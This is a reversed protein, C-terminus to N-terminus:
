KKSLKSKEFLDPRKKLTAKIAQKKRWEEIKAHHGSLLVEPVSMNLFKEPRTYHPYDLLGNFFSDQEVSSQEKVVGPLFRSIGDILVMSPLEGGTLVYDGISVEMDVFNLVREDVGEYHGCLLILHKFKALNKLLKQDLTKGQPSLYIVPAKGRKNRSSAKKSKVAGLSKLASYVPEVKLVMGPGGGFPRDDVSHHKDTTFSRINVLNIELIKNQLARKILSETLPGEFM